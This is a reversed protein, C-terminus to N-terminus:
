NSLQLAGLIMNCVESNCVMTWFTFLEKEGQIIFSKTAEENACDRIIDNLKDLGYLEDEPKLTIEVSSLLNISQLTRSSHQSAIHVISIVRGSRWLSSDHALRNFRKSVRMITYYLFDYDYKGSQKLASAKIIMLLIEDPCHCEDFPRFTVPDSM